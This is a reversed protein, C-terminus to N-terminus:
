YDLPMRRIEKNLTTMLDYAEDHNAHHTICEKGVVVGWKGHFCVKAETVKFIEKM